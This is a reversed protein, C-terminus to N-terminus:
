TSSASLRIVRINQAYLWALMALMVCAETTVWAIAAGTYGLRHILLYNLGLGIVSGGLTILFYARDMRLNLMTHMGLLSNLALLLPLVALIRLVPVAEVFRDGYLLTVTAPATAFLCVGILTTVGLLAPALRRVTALGKDRNEGFAAAVMPFLAQNLALVVFARLIAELRSAAAFVGVAYATSFLGLMFVHSSSYLTNNVAALFLTTSDRFRQGIARWNVREYRLRYRRVAMSLAMGSVVVHAASMVVNQYIYDDARRVLLFVGLTLIIKALLSLSAVRGLDEMGQFLWQPYLVVGICYSCTALHLPLLARFSPDYLALAAFIGGALGLLLVKAVLIENFIRNVFAHDTRNAAVLRVVSLDFGFSVLLVFYHNYSLSFNLLGMREPGIVRSVYPVTLLPLLYNAVQVSFLSAINVSLRRWQGRPVLTELKGRM